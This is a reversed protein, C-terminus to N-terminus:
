VINGSGYLMSTHPLNYSLSEHPIDFTLGDSVNRRHHMPPPYIALARVAAYINRGIICVVGDKLILATKAIVTARLHVNLVSTIAIFSVSINLM